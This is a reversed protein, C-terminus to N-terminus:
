PRPPPQPERPSGAGGPDATAAEDGPGYLTLKWLILIVAGMVALFVKATTDWVGVFWPVVLLLVGVALEVYGHTTLPLPRRDATQVPFRTVVTMALHVGALVYCVVEASGELQLAFPAAVFVAVAVYDLARHTRPTLM